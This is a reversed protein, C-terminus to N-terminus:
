CGWFSQESCLFGGEVSGSDSPIPSAVGPGLLFLKLFLILSECYKLGSQLVFYWTSASSGKWSTVAWLARERGRKGGSGWGAGCVLSRKVSSREWASM